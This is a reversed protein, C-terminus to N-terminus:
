GRDRPKKARFSRPDDPPADLGVLSEIAARHECRKWHVRPVGVNVPVVRM